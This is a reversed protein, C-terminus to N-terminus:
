LLISNFTYRVDIDKYVIPPDRARRREEERRREEADLLADTSPGALQEPMAPATEVAEAM